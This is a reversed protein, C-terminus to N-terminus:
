CARRRRRALLSAAALGMVGLSAPEPVATVGSLGAAEVAGATPFAAGQAVLNFDIASYDDGSIIGDWNFDGNTWGSAGPTGSAFDIASYDDGSIFGDMNADGRYTYMAITTTDTVTQGAFTDTQGASLGLIKGANGVGISTLGTAADPMSTTVGSGNWAGANNGSQVLGSLGDYTGGTATGVPMSTIIKNDRLDLKAGPDVSVSGTNLVRNSGGGSAVELTGGSVTTAGGYVNAGGALVLTGTGVKTLGGTTGNITGAFTTSANSGGTTLTGAGLLVGSGAVGSLSGITQDNGNLDLAAGSVPISVATTAPLYQLGNSATFTNTNFLSQIQTATLAGSFFKVEDLEGAFHASGDTAFTNHTFGLRVLTTPDANDFGTLTMPVAAGDVYISKAGDASVFTLMHWGGDVVPQNGQMFGGGWRVATPLNAGGGVTLQDNPLYVLADGSDWNGDGDDKSLLTSGPTTSKAWLSLTWSATGAQDVIRDAIDVSSGLGDLALANGFQGPVISAGGGGLLHGADNVTGNMAGGGTGTNAVITGGALPGGQALEDFSYVGVAAVTAAPALQLTGGNIVTNGSYTSTGGRLQLTGAGNKTLGGTGGGLLPQTVRVNNGNTDIIAGGNGVNVASLNTILDADNRTARLTGGNLNLTGTGANRRVSGTSLTGGNLNYTHNGTGANGIVTNGTGGATTGNDSYFTVDGGNHNFITTGTHNGNVGMLIQSNNLLNLSGGNMNVTGSTAADWTGVELNGFTNNHRVNVIGGNVALTGVGGNAFGVVLWNRANLTGGSSVTATGGTTNNGGFLATNANVTGGSEIVLNGSGGNNGVWLDPGTNDLTGGSNVVLTGNRVDTINATLTGGVALTGAGEKLLTGTVNTAGGLTVPATGNVTVTSSGNRTITGTGLNLANTGGFIIDGNWTQANSTALTVPSGSTNDITAASAVTLAGTGIANANNINLTGGNLTTGGSYTNANSITLSGAGNKVLSGTGGVSGAGSLTYNLASNDFTALSPAVTGVVNVNTSGLATDDFRVVDGDVFEGDLGNVDWPKDAANTSWNTSATGKWIPLAGTITLQLINGSTGIAASQRGGVGAITGMVFQNADGTISGASVLDYTGVGWTGTHDVNVVVNGSGLGLTGTVTLPAAGGPTSVTGMDITLDAAGPFSLGSVTSTGSRFGKGSAVVVNSTLSSGNAMSLTGDNVNTPGTYTNAGALTLVGAGNKTLGGDTANDGAIDSHLLAQPVVVNFGNTDIIAGGDRVNVRQTAGGLDIFNNSTNTARLTGGNFNFAALGDNVTTLVQSIALTGGNLNFTNNTAAGGARNLDVVATTTTGTQNGSYSTIAGSNLNVVSAGSSAGTSFRLDTNTNLNLTGGDINITGRVGEQRNVILWRKTTTAVNVVGGADINLTGTSDANGRSAVTLDGESNVTGGAGVTLNGTVLDGAAGATTLNVFGANLTGNSVSVTGAGRWKTLSLGSTTITGGTQTLTGSGGHSGVWIEGVANLTGAQMNLTGDGLNSGFDGVGLSISAYGGGAFPYAHSGNSNANVTGTTNITITGTGGPFYYGGGAFLKGVTLSADGSINYIGNGGGRGVFMWNGNSGTDALSLTGSTHDLRGSQGAGDGLILDVPTFASNASLVPYNGVETNITFNGTPNAPDTSWNTADNWDQSTDGVWTAQGKAVPSLEAVVMGMALGLALRAAARSKSSRTVRGNVMQGIGAQIRNRSM